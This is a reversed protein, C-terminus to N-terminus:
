IGFTTEGSRPKSGHYCPRSPRNSNRCWSPEHRASRNTTIKIKEVHIKKFTSVQFMRCRSRWWRPISASCLSPSNITNAFISLLLTATARSKKLSEISGITPFSQGIDINLPKPPWPNIKKSKPCYNSVYQRGIDIEMSKQGIIM